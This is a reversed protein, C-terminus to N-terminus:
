SLQTALHGTKGWTTFWVAGLCARDPKSKRLGSCLHHSRKFIFAPKAAKEKAIQSFQKYVDM